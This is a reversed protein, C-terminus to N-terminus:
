RHAGPPREVTLPPGQVLVEFEQEFMSVAANLTFRRSHALAGRGLEERRASDRILEDMARALAGVDGAPVLLGTRGDIIADSQGGPYTGIMAKGCSLAEVVVGGSPEPWLSPAVGFLARRWATMVAAHPLDTLVVVGPPLPTAPTDREVTGILVMPPPSALRAYADLLTELGKLRRLAGVFLIFPESPLQQLYHSVEADRAAPEDTLFSPIVVQAIKTSGTVSEQGKLLERRMVDQMYTSVSQLASIKRRLLQRSLYVGLAAAWGKPMGYYRGACGLCKLPAPGTCARNRFLFTRTACFYGYDRASVVLPIDKGILAAACSFASWGYTYILDPRTRKILKRLGHVVIPDPFPPQHRQRPNRNLLPIATRLQRLRYVMVGEYDEIAPMGVQWATAVTVMHGRARLERALMRLQRQAGGIFPPFTDTVFLLRMKDSEDPQTPTASAQQILGEYLREIRPITVEATFLRSRQAAARGLRERMGPNSILAQMANALAPVDGGPVLLGTEGDVILDTHGGPDTGIVPKGRSMAECVVTGFPEPWRSPMVSFLCHEYATMVADHPVDTIVRVRAPFDTPSDPELTGILVLPPPDELLEYAALLEEVGKVRRLAGVFLIFPEDPLEEMPAVARDDIFAGDGREPPTSIADHIVHSPTTDGDNLFDRRMIAEVYSSVSHVARVKRRLLPKTGFVGLPAIWGKPRGYYRGACNLCKLLAPGSCVEGGRMLTRNACGYAYDRSTLLLPINKGLLAAACSYSIWGYSHVIDPRFRRILRRLQFITLPDPFPPQHHQRRRRALGPTTRLQRLRHVRIGEDDEVSPMDNQWVTVVVVDHGRDRLEQALVRSQIQAGGIYPPYNDTALLIRV